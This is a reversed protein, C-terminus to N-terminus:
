IKTLNTFIAFTLMVITLTSLYLFYYKLKKEYIAELMLYIIATATGGEGFGMIVQLMLQYTINKQGNFYFERIGSITGYFEMATLVVSTAIFIRFANKYPQNKRKPIIYILFCITYVAFCFYYFFNVYRYIVLEVM